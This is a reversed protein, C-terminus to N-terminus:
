ITSADKDDGLAEAAPGVIGSGCAQDGGAYRHTWNAAAGAAGSLRSRLPARMAELRVIAQLKWPLAPHRFDVTRSNGGHTGWQGQRCALGKWLQFRLQRRDRSQRSGEGRRRGGVLHNRDCAGDSRRIGRGQAGDRSTKTMGRAESVHGPWISDPPSSGPKRVGIRNPRRIALMTRERAVFREESKKEVRSEFIPAGPRRASPAVGASSLTLGGAPGSHDQRHSEVGVDDSNPDGGRWSGFRALSLEVFDARKVFGRM